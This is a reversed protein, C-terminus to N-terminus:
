QLVTTQKRKAWSLININVSIYYASPDDWVESPYPIGPEGIENINTVEIEYWNNRLVGWRGLWNADYNKQTWTTTYYSDGNMNSKVAWPTTDDGFHKIMIPYYAVGNVYEAITFSNALSGLYNLIANNIAAKQTEDSVGTFTVGSIASVYKYGPKASVDSLTYTMATADINVTGAWSYTTKWTSMNSAIFDSAMQQIKSKLLDATYIKNKVSNLIYFAEGDSLSVANGDKDNVSFKAAIIARTTQEQSQNKVSFTNELCYLPNNSGISGSLTPTVGNTYKNDFATAEDVDGTYNLDPAFFTRYLPTVMSNEVPTNRIFRYKEGALVNGFQTDGDGAGTSASTYTWWNDSTQSHRVIYSSKNTIDLDWGTVTASTFHTATAVTPSEASVTVKAVGREVYIDAAPNAEAEAQTLKINRANIPALIKIETNASPTQTWGPETALPANTMFIRKNTKDYFKEVNASTFNDDFVDKFTTTGSTLTKGNLTNSSVNLLSNHNLIVLAYMNQTNNAVNQVQAVLKKKSTIENPNDTDFKEFDGTLSVMQVFKASMEDAGAFILLTADKVAYEDTLGDEYTTARTGDQSPMNINLSLFGENSTENSTSEVFEDDSSCAGLMLAALALTMFRFKKM